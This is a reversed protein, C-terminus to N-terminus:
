LTELRANREFGPTNSCVPGEPVPAGTCMEKLIHSSATICRQGQGQHYGLIPCVNTVMSPM